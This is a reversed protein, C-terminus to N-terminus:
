RLIELAEQAYQRIQGKRENDLAPDEDAMILQLSRKYHHVAKVTDGTRELYAALYYNVESSEPFSGYAMKYLQLRNSFEPDRKWALWSRYDRYFSPSFPSRNGESQLNQYVSDVALIGKELFLVKLEAM